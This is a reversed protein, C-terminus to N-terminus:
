RRDAHCPAGALRLTAERGRSPHSVPPPRCRVESSGVKASVLGSHLLEVDYDCLVYIMKSNFIHKDKNIEEVIKSKNPCEEIQQSNELFDVSNQNIV